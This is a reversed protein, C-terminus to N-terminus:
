IDQTLSVYMVKYHRSTTISDCSNKKQVVGVIVLSVYRLFLLHLHAPFRSVIWRRYDAAAERSRAEM